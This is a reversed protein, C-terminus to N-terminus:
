SIQIFGFIVTTPTDVTRYRDAKHGGVVGSSTVRSTRHYVAPSLQDADVEVACPFTRHAIVFVIRGFTAVNNDIDSVHKKNDVTDPICTVQEVFHM